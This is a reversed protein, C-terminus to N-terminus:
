GATEMLASQLSIDGIDPSLMVEAGHQRTTWDQRLCTATGWTRVLRALVVSSWLSAVPKVLVVLARDAWTEDSRRFCLVRLGGLWSVAILALLVRAVLHAPTPWTALVSVLLGIGSLFSYIGFATFWWVYSLIPYYKLRWCNRVARGRAWRIRQRLHHGLNEPWMTLGFASLQQVSKGRMSGALALLSDDGLIVRRGLFTEGWYLPIIERIMGARYLAFPGRNTYMDGTVSWAAGTVAQAFQQMANQVVTLTNLSANFGLEIGAVSMVNRRAFPKLGEEIARHELTTDSDVTVFIDADPATAFTRCHARRKGANAQRIWRVEIRGHRGVWHERLAAYDVSSGDDIVDVRQPPRSQNLLAWLCRDLLPPDENYVPVSVVVRLRALQRMSASSAATPRDLCSLLWGFARFGLVPAAAILLSSRVAHVSTVTNTRWLVLGGTILGGLAISRARWHSFRVSPVDYSTALAGPIAQAQAVPLPLRVRVSRHRGSVRRQDDDRRVPVTARGGESSSMSLLARLRGAGAAVGSARIAEGPATPGADRGPLVALDDIM